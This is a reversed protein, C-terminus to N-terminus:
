GVMSMCMGSQARHRSSLKNTIFVRSPFVNGSMKRMALYAAPSKVYITVCFDVVKPSFTRWHEDINCKERIEDVIERFLIRQREDPASELIRIHERAEKPLNTSM